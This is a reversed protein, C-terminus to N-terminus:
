QIVISKALTKNCKLNQFSSKIDTNNNYSMTMINVHKFNHKINNSNINKRNSADRKAAYVPKQYCQLVSKKKKSKSKNNRLKLIYPSEARSKKQEHKERSNNQNSIIKMRINKIASKKIINNKIDNNSNKKKNKETFFFSLLKKVNNCSISSASILNSNIKNDKNKIFYSQRKLNTVGKEKKLTGFHQYSNILNSILHTNVCSPRKPRHSSERNKNDFLIKNKKNVSTSVRKKEVQNKILNNSNPKNKAIKKIKQYKQTNKTIKLKKQNKTLDKVMSILSEDLINKSIYSIDSESFTISKNQKNIKELQKKKNLDECRKFIELPTLPTGKENNSSQTITTSYNEITELVYRDFIKKNEKPKNNLNDLKQIKNMKKYQNQYIRLQQFGYSRKWKNFYDDAFNPKELFLMHHKYYYEKKPIIKKSENYSYYHSICDSNVIKYKMIFLDFFFINTNKEFYYFSRLYNLIKQIEKHVYKKINYNIQSKKISNKTFTFKKQAQIEKPKMPKNANNFLCKKYNFISQSIMDTEEYKLIKNPLPRLNNKQM